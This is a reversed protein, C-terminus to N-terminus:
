MRAGLDSPDLAPIEDLEAMALCGDLRGEQSTM